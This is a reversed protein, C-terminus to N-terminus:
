LKRRLHFIFVDVFYRGLYKMEDPDPCGFTPLGLKGKM